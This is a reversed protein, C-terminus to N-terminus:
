NTVTIAQQLVFRAIGWASLIIILGVVGASMLKKAETIKDDNGGATMWKFGAILVIAVTILGLFVMAANLLTTATQMPTKNGLTGQINVSPDELGKSGTVGVTDLTAAMAPAAFILGLVIVSLFHKMINKM